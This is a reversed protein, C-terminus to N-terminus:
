PNSPALENRQYLTGGNPFDHLVSYQDNFARSALLRRGHLQQPRSKGPSDRFMLLYVYAPKQSLVYDLDFKEHREGTQRAIHLDMLGFLDLVPRRTYYPIVGAEGLALRGPARAHQNMWRAVDFHSGEAMVIGSFGSPVRSAWRGLSRSSGVAIALLLFTGSCIRLLRDGRAGLKQTTITLAANWRQQWHAEIVWAPLQPLAFHSLRLRTAGAWGENVLLAVIPLAPVFLRWSLMWDGGEYAIGAIQIALLTACLAIPVVARRSLVAFLVSLGVIPILNLETLAEGVYSLGRQLAAHDGHLKAYYTNPLLQGYYGSRFALFAGYPLLFTALYRLQLRWIGAGLKRRWLVLWRLGLLPLILIAPEPRTLAALALALASIPFREVDDPDGLEAWWQRVSLAIWFAVLPGELAGVGWILFPGLTALYLAGLPLGSSAISGRTRMPWAVVALTGLNLLVGLAKATIQMGMTYQSVGLYAPIALLVTWLFNSYGEVREGPNFVLGLGQALNEAYRFSIFADDMTINVFHFCGILTLCCALGFAVGHTLRQTSPGM